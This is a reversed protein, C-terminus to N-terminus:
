YYRRLARLPVRLGHTLWPAAFRFPMALGPAALAKISAMPRLSVQGPSHALMHAEWQSESDGDDRRLM